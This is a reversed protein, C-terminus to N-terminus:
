FRRTLTAIANRGNGTFCDGFARCESYYQKNLLNSVSLSLSWHDVDIAALSDVLLYSPTRVQGAFATSLVEGVYRIGSGLRLSPGSSSPFTKSAWLSANHKPVDSLQVGIEPAFGSSVVRANVYGYAATVTLDNAAQYRGEVEIGSSKVRGTQISVLANKPDNTLRNTETIDFATITLLTRRDPQWKLGGEYQHGRQPRYPNGFFDLGLVPQFSESYSIYPSLGFGIEGILGARLTTAKDNQTARGAIRAKTWDQRAGVVLTVRDAYRMQDQVYVGLQSQIVRPRAVLSPKPINGYVPNYIDISGAVGVDRSKREMFNSYDVGFVVQHKVAGTAFRAEITNDSNLTAISSRQADYYRAVVRKNADLFPNFPKSYVSSAIQNFVVEHRAYRSNSRLTVADNLRHSLITTASGQQASLKDFNPEGLFTNIPLGPGGALRTAAYPLFQQSSANRDRQYTGILTLETRDGARWTFSPVLLVRRDPIFDTQQNADRVVAVIRAALNGQGDIPGTIDAQIQKRDFSGYQIGIEGRPDFSPRKTISNVIGGSGGQGYLVSSPGRLLEVRELSYTDTRSISTYGLKRLLGDQYYAPFFGRVMAVDGRTDLGFSEAAVGASYRLTEQVNLQNRDAILEQPVVSIAQPIEVLPTDTKTATFARGGTVVIDTPTPEPADAAKIRAAPRRKQPAPQTRTQVVSQLTFGGRGDPVAQLGSGRLLMGLAQAPTYDGRLGLARQGRVLAPDFVIMVRTM